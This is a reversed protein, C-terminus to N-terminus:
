EIFKFTSLVQKLIKEAQAYGQPHRISFWYTRLADGPSNIDSSFECPLWAYATKGTELPSESSIEPLTELLGSASPCPLSKPIGPFDKCESESFASYIESDVGAHVDIWFAAEPGDWFAAESEDYGPFLFRVAAIVVGQLNELEDIEWDQPIKVQYSGEENLYVKWNKAFDEEPKEEPEEELEEEPKEGRGFMEKINPPLWRDLYETRWALGIGSVVAVVFVTILIIPVIRKRSVAFKKM